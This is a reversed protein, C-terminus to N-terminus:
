GFQESRSASEARRHTDVQKEKEKLLLRDLKDALLDIAAYMDHAVAETHLSRGAIQANAEAKHNPKDLSIQVRIHADRGFHRELRALKNSVYEGIAPTVEIQHGHTEIRM